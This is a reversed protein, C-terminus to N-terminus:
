ERHQVRACNREDQPLRTGSKPATAERWCWTLRWEHEGLFTTSICMKTQADPATADTCCVTPPWAEDRICTTSILGVKVSTVTADPCCVTIRRACWWHRYDLYSLSMVIKTVVHSIVLIHCQCSSRHNELCVKECFRSSKKWIYNLSM